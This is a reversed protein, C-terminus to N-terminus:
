VPHLVGRPHNQVSSCIELSADSQSRSGMEKWVGSAAPLFAPPRFCAAHLATSLLGTPGLSRPTAPSPSVSYVHWAQAPARIDGNKEFLYLSVSRELLFPLLNFPLSVPLIEPPFLMLGLLGHM